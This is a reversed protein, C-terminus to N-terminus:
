HRGGRPWATLFIYNKGIKGVQIIVRLCTGYLDNRTLNDYCQPFQVYAIEHGKEEDMFFCVADRVSESNNSYMDCDVNLIISGNSIKSSM